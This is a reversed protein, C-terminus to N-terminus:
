NLSLYIMEYRVIGGLTIDLQDLFNLILILLNSDIWIVKADLLFSYGRIDSLM